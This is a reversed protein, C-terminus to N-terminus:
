QGNGKDINKICGYVIKSNQLYVGYVRGENVAKQYKESTKIFYFVILFFLHMKLGPVSTATYTVWYALALFFIPLSKYKIPVYFLSWAAYFLYVIVGVVGYQVIVLLWISEMGYLM